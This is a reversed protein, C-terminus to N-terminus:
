ESRLAKVPDLKVATIAPYLASLFSLAVATGVVWAVDSINVLVPLKEIYYIDKPLDVIRFKQLVWCIGLGLALGTGAGLLGLILGDWAFIKAVRGSELGIAKLVGIDRTKDMVLITLSGAINLSAVLIILALIVFMTIKELKLAAFFTRNLDMWSRVSYGPGLRAALRQKIADARDADRVAVSLGLAGSSKFLRRADAEGLFVLNADYDYMGSSFIGEVKAEFPKDTEQTAIRFVSGLELGARKALELGVVAGNPRGSFKGRIVYQDFKSVGKEAEPDIGRILVGAAFGGTEILAQGEIFPAAALVDRDGRAHASLAKWDAVGGQREIVLHAHLGIIRSKLDSDFGNMVALTAILAAVGVAIGAVSILSVVGVFPHRRKSRLYRKAIFLELSM